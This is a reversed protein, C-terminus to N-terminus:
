RGRPRSASVSAGAIPAPMAMSRKPRRSQCPPSANSTAWWGPSAAGCRPWPGTRPRYPHLRWIVLALLTAWLGGAAFMLAVTGAEAPSLARDLAICVVVVLVNGAAQAQISWVRIYTCAFIVACAVPVVVPLGMPRLLGLGGWLLGGILSFTTLVRLRAHMPGGTDCFCALNAAFAMSLLPPWPFLAHLLFVVGFAFGARVGESLQIGRPDLGIPLRTLDAGPQALSGRGTSVRRRVRRPSPTQPSPASM